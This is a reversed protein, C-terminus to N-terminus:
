DIEEFDVYEGVKKNSSANKNPIKDITVEGENQPKQQFPQQNGFQQGFRKEAKKILSKMLIPALLRMLIKVGFYVLMIILITRVFGVVSAEQLM